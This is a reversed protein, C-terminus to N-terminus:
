CCRSSEEASPPPARPEVRERFLTRNPLGTLPDYRALRDNELSQRRLRRSAQAVIRFLMAWLLALGIAVVLVIM